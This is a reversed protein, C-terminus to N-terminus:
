NPQLFPKNTEHFLISTNVHLQHVINVVFAHPLPEVGLWQRDKFVQLGYINEQLLVTIINPDAHKPLGLALGPDPCPPYHNISLLQGKTLDGEFYGRELGLGECILDLM